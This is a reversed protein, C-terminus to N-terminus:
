ESVAEEAVVLEVKAALVEIRMDVAEAPAGVVTAVRVDVVVGGEKEDVMVEAVVVDVMAEVEAKAAEERAGAVVDVTEALVMVSEALLAAM